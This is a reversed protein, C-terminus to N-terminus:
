YLICSYRHNLKKKFYMYFNFIFFIYKYKFYVYSVVLTRKYTVLTTNLVMKLSIDDHGLFGPKIVQDGQLYSGLVYINLFLLTLYKM